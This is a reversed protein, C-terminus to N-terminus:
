SIINVASGPPPTFPKLRSSLAQSLSSNIEFSLSIRRLLNGLNVEAEEIESQRRTQEESTLELLQSDLNAFKSEINQVMDLATSATNQTVNIAVNVESQLATLTDSVGSNATLPGATIQLGRITAVDEKLYQVVNGDKIDNHTFVWLNEIRDALADRQAEFASVEAADVTADQNFTQFLVTIEDFVKELAGKNNLAGQRFDTLAPLADVLKRQRKSLDEIRHRTSAPTTSLKEIKENHRTILSNQLRNFQLEFQVKQVNLASNALTFAFPDLAM